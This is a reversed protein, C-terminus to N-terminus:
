IELLKPTTKIHELYARIRTVYTVAQKYRSNSAQNRKLYDYMNVWQDPDKGQRKIRTQIGNVAGPGMNYAALAFWNRDPYPIHDYQNLMQDYYKAGGQISQQPNTRDNVGMARATNNTLMMLGRVGTPSVSRPNLFSEQYGIAALLHWDIDFEEASRQFSAKYIPMRQKLNNQIIDWDSDKVVNRNYFSALQDLRGNQKSMCVYGSAIETLPDDARQFVWNLETDLGNRDLTNLNGCSVSFSSLDKREVMEYDATTMAFNAKGQAVMNLAAQNDKVTKFELEVNMSQAYDRVLDYGFGYRFQDKEFVASPNNVAVVTLKNQDLVAQHQNVKFASLNHEPLLVISLVVATSSLRSFRSSLSPRTASTPNNRM